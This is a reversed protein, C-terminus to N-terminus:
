TGGKVIPDLTGTSLSHYLPRGRAYIRRAEAKGWDTKMLDEYLPRLFKRRGMSTLFRELAPMAPTYHNRIAVRLWVFLVEANGRKSLEFTRDLDAMQAPTLKEPLSGLFHQWEQTSWSSATKISSASAGAAISKADQEVRALADSMPTPANDPIGPQYLWEQLKIRRELEADGKLLHKRLYAEFQATTISTFAHSDFYSRLFGDFVARGFTQELLRLFLAGKDYPVQTLGDDPDRGALDIHLITEKSTPGGLRTIEEELARRDLLQLMRAREDGYIAEM